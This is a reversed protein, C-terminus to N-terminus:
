LNKLKNLGCTCIRKEESILFGANNIQCSGLHRTYKILEKNKFRRVMEYLIMDTDTIEVPVCMIHSKGGTKALESIQHEVKKILVDDPMESQFKRLEEVTM